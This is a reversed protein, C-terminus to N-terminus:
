LNEEFRPKQSLIHGKGKKPSGKKCKEHPRKNHNSKKCKITFLLSSLTKKLRKLVWRRFFFHGCHCHIASRFRSIERYSTTKWQLSDEMSPRKGNFTMKRWLDDEVLSRRGGFTMKWRLDDEVLTTKWWVNSGLM